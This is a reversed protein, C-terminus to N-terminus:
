GKGYYYQNLMKLINESIQRVYKFCDTDGTKFLEKRGAHDQNTIYYSVKDHTNGYGLIEIILVNPKLDPHNIEILIKVEDQINEYLGVESTSDLLWLNPYTRKDISQHVSSEVELMFKYIDIWEASYVGGNQKEIKMM